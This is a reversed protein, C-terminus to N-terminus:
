QQMKNYLFPNLFTASISFDTRKRTKRRILMYCYIVLVHPAFIYIKGNLVSQAYSCKQQPLPLENASFRTQQSTAYLKEVPLYSTPVEDKDVAPSSIFPENLQSSDDPVGAQPRKHASTLFSNSLFCVSPPPASTYM